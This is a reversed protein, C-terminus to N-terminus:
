RVSLGSQLGISIIVSSTEERRVVIKSPDSFAMVDRRYGLELFVPLRPPVYVVSTRAELGSGTVSDQEAESLMRRYNVGAKVHVGAGAFHRGGEVGLEPM